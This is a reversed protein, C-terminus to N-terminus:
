GFAAAGSETGFVVVLVIGIVLGVVLPVLVWGPNEVPHGHGDDEHDAHADEDYSDGHVDTV